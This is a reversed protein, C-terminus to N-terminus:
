VPCLPPVIVGIRVPQALDSTVEFSEAFSKTHVGLLVRLIKVLSGILDLALASFLLRRIVVLSSPLWGVGLDIWGLDIVNLSHEIPQLAIQPVGSREESAATLLM